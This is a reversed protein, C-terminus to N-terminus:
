RYRDASGAVGVVLVGAVWELSGPRGGLGKFGRFRTRRRQIFTRPGFTLAFWVGYVVLAAVPM